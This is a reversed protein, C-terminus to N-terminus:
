AAAPRGDRVRRIAKRQRETMGGWIGQEGHSLAFELCKLRVHCAVCISKADAATTRAGIEPFFLDPDVEQCLGETKWAVDEAPIPHSPWRSTM